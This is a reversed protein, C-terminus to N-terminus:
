KTRVVRRADSASQDNARHRHSSVWVCASTAFVVRVPGVSGALLVALTERAGVLDGGGRGATGGWGEGKVV